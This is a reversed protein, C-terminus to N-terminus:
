TTEGYSLLLALVGGRFTGANEVLVIGIRGGLQLSVVLRPARERKGVIRQWRPRYLRVDHQFVRFVSVHVRVTAGDIWQVVHGLGIVSGRQRRTLGDARTEIAPSRRRYGGAVCEVLKYVVRRGGDALRSTKLVLLDFLLAHQLLALRQQFLALGLVLLHDGLCVGRVARAM